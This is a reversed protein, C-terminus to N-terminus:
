PEIAGKAAGAADDLMEAISLIDDTAIGYQTALIAIAYSAAHEVVPMIGAEDPLWGDPAMSLTRREGQESIAAAGARLVQAAVSLDTSAIATVLEDPIDAIGILTVDDPDVEIEYGSGFVVVMRGEHDIRDVTGSVELEHVIVDRGVFRDRAEDLVDALAPSAPPTRVVALAPTPVAPAVIPTDVLPGTTEAPAWEHRCNLCLRHAEDLEVSSSERCAPCQDVPWTTMTM